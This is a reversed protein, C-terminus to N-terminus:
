FFLSAVWLLARLITIIAAVSLSKGKVEGDEIAIYTPFRTAGYKKALEPHEDADIHIVDVGAKEIKDVQPADARCQPCSKITFVVLHRGHDEWSHQRPAPQNVIVVPAVPTYECGAFVVLAILTLLFRKM